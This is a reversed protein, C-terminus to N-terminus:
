IDVTLIYTWSIFIGDTYMGLYIYILFYTKPGYHVCSTKLRLFIVIRGSSWTCSMYHLYSTM